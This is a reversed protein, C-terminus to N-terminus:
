GAPGRRRLFGALAAVAAEGIRETDLRARRQLLQKRLEPKM